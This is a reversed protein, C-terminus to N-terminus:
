TQPKHFDVRHRHHQSRKVEKMRIKQGMHITEMESMWIDTTAERDLDRFCDSEGMHFNRRSFDPFKGATADTHREVVESRTETRKGIQVVQRDLFYLDVLREDPVHVGPRPIKGNDASRHQCRRDPPDM